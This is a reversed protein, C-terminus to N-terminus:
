VTRSCRRLGPSKFHRTELGVPVPVPDLGSRFILQGLTGQMQHKPNTRRTVGLRKKEGCQAVGCGPLHMSADSAEWLTLQEPHEAM